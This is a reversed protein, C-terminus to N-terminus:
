SVAFVVTHAHMWHFTLCGVEDAALLAIVASYMTKPAINTICAERIIFSAVTFPLLQSHHTYFYLFLLALSIDHHSGHIYLLYPHPKPYIEMKSKM